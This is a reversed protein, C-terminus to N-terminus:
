SLDAGACGLVSLLRTRHSRLLDELEEEKAEVEQRKLKVRTAAESASSLRNREQANDGM